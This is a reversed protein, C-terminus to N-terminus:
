NSKRCYIVIGGTLLPRFIKLSFLTRCMRLKYPTIPKIRSPILDGKRIADVWCSLPPHISWDTHPFVLKPLLIRWINFPDVEQIIIQGENKLLTSFHRFMHQYRDAVSPNKKYSQGAAVFHHLCNNAIIIDFPGSAFTLADCEIATLRKELALRKIHSKLVQLVGIESGNGSSQDLATIHAAMTFMALYLSVFGKGCGVELVSKGAFDIGSFQESFHYRFNEASPLHHEYLESFTDWATM